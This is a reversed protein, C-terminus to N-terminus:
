LPYKLFTYAKKSKRFLFFQCLCDLFFGLLNCNVLIGMFGMAKPGIKFSHIASYVWAYCLLLFTDGQPSVKKNYKTIRHRGNGKCYHREM